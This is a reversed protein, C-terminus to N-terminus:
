MFYLCIVILIVFVTEKFETELGDSENVTCFMVVCTTCVMAEATLGNVM